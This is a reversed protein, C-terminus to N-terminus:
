WECQYPPREVVCLQRGDVFFVVSPAASAPEVRARITTRGAVYAGEEPSVIAVREAAVQGRTVAGTPGAVILAVLGARCAWRRKMSIEQDSATAAENVSSDIRKTM